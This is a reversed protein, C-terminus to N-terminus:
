RRKKARSRHSCCANTVAVATINILLGNIYLWEGKNNFVFISFARHLLGKEHAEMKEMSGAIEDRENVLIVNKEM